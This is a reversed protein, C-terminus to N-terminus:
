AGDSRAGLHDVEEGSLAEGVLRELDEPKALDSGCSLVAAAGAALGVRFAQEAERGIAFGHVMGALFSDGAGVASCAKVPVAPLVLSGSKSALIAGERGMTVAVNEASGSSVLREAESVLEATTLPRGAFAEFEGRSPKVLFLGGADLSARLSAGSTDLVFRAGRASVATQLKVYFDDPVGRPLSGSAVFYDCSEDSVAEFLKEIEPPSVDPGEPVFRYENGTSREVVTLSLRTDDVIAIMRHRIGGRDLLEELVRGTVGGGLFMACVNAGLRTLVRAVNIGGGGPEMVENCTRVKRTHRVLDAESSMDIAPNLTLTVIRAKDSM